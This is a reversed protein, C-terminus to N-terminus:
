LRGSLPRSLSMSRAAQLPPPCETQRCFSLLEATIMTQLADTNALLTESDVVFRGSALDASIRANIEPAYHDLDKYHQPQM